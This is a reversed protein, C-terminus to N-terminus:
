ITEASLPFWLMKDICVKTVIACEEYFITNEKHYCLKHKIVSTMAYLVVFQKVFFLM